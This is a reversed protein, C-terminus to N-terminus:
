GQTIIIEYISEPNIEVNGNSYVVKVFPPYEWINCEVDETFIGKRIELVIAIASDDGNLKNRVIDGVKM